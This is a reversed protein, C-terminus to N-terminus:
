PLTVSAKKPTDISNKYFAFSEIVKLGQPLKINVLSNCDYFTSARITDISEPINISTLKTCSSFASAGIYEVSEPINFESFQCGGFASKGISKLQSGEDLSIQTIQSGKLQKIDTVTKPVTITSINKHSISLLRINVSTVTYTVGDYVVTEPINVQENPYTLEISSLQVTHAETDLITYGLMDVTFDACHAVLATIMAIVSLLLKKMNM